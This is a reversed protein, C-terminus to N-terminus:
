RAPRSFGDCSGGQGYPREAVGPLANGGCPHSHRRLWDRGGDHTTERPRCGHSGIRDGSRLPGRAAYQQRPDSRGRRGPDSDNRPERAPSGIGRGRLEAPYLLLRRIELDCTRIRGPTCRRGPGARARASAGRRAERPRASRGTLCAGLGAVYSVAPRRVRRLAPALFLHFGPLYSNGPNRHRGSRLGELVGLEVGALEGRVLGPAM